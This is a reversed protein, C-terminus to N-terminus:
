QDVAPGDYIGTTAPAEDDNRPLAFDGAVAGGLNSRAIMFRWGVPNKPLETLVTDICSMTYVPTWYVVQGGDLRLDELSLLENLEATVQALLKPEPSDFKFPM